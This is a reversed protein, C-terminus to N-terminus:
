RRNVVWALEDPRLRPIHTDLGDALTDLLHNAWMANWVTGMHGDAVALNSPHDGATNTMALGPVIERARYAPHGQPDRGGWDTTFLRREDLFLIGTGPRALARLANDFPDLGQDIHRLAVPNRWRDLYKAWHANNFIGVLVFRLTPVEARLRSVAEDIAATCNSVRRQVDPDNPNAALRDLVESDGLDNIGIRIVVVSQRWAAPRERILDILFESQRLRGGNLDECRAGSVAFNHLHDEKRPTRLAKGVWGAVRSTRPHVGIEGWAGLDIEQPRLRALLETWQLTVARYAGGRAPTGPPFHVRDQYAHSDSDGLVAMRLAAPSVSPGAAPEPGAGSSTAAVTSM